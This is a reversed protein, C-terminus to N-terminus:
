RAQALIDLGHPWSLFVTTKRFVWTASIPSLQWHIWDESLVHEFVSM